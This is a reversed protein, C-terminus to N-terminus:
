YMGAQLPGNGVTFVQCRLAILPMVGCHVLPYQQREVIPALSRNAGVAPLADVEQIVDAANRGPRFMERVRAPGGPEKMLAQLKRRM